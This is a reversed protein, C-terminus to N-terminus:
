RYDYCGVGPRRKRALLHEKATWWERRKGREDEERGRKAMNKTNLKGTHSKEHLSAYILGKAQKKHLCLRSM